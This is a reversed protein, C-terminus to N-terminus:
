LKVPNLTSIEMDTTSIAKGVRLVFHGTTSPPTQTLMGATASDLYYVGGATLGGTEGTVADWQATSASLIGDTQINGSATTLITTDQVLGLVEVTAVADAQALDVGDASSVYVPAGIVISGANDNTLSVVDVEGSVAADVTDGAQLQQIQGSVIVLPKRLAM